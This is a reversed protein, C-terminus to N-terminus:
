LRGLVLGRAVLLIPISLAVAAACIRLARRTDDPEPERGMPNLVYVGPKGLRVGLRMALAGMPWGGNPSPTRAAQGALERLRIGAGASVLLAALRSPVWNLVDDARAAWKGKWEWEGRYGWCADATNAFRYVFVAPLGLVSWWLLPAIVSDSLNEALSELASERVQAPSLGDVDRSVIRSLRRRGEELSVALGREVSRVESLLMRFSFMPWLLVAQAPGSIWPQFRALWRQALFGAGGWLVAGACWALAGAAFGAARGSPLRRGAFSLMRGMWAVPHLATPPESLVIDLAIALLLIM